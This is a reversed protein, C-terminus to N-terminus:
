FMLKCRSLKVNKSSKAAVLPCLSFFDFLLSDYLGNEPGFLSDELSSLRQNVKTSYYSIGSDLVSSNLTRAHDYQVELENWYTDRNWEFPSGGAERIERADSDPILLIGYFGIIALFTILVTKIM